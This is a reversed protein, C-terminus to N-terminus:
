RTAIEEGGERTEVILKELEQLHGLTEEDRPTIRYRVIKGELREALGNKILLDQYTVVTHFNLSCSYVIKTKNGGGQVSAFDQITDPRQIAQTGYTNHYQDLISIFTESSVYASETLSSTNATPPYLHNLYAM